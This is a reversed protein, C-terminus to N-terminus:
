IIKWNLKLLPDAGNGRIYKHYYLNDNRLLMTYILCMFSSNMCHVEQAKEITYLFDFICLDMNDPRVIKYEKKIFTENIKFNRSYDDHVFIYKEDDNLNLINYYVDKEREINREYYFDLWKKEIKIDAHKYFMSDFTDQFISFGVKLLKDYYVNLSNIYKDLLRNDNYINKIDEWYIHVVEINKSDKYMEKVAKFNNERSLVYVTDYLKSYNRVISNCLILDGLGQHSLIVLRSM